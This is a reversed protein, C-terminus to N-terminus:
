LMNSSMGDAPPRDAPWMCISSCCNPLPIALIELPVGRQLHLHSSVSLALKTGPAQCPRPPSRTIQNRVEFGSLPMQWINYGEFRFSQKVKNTGASYPINISMAPSLTFSYKYYLLHLLGINKPQLSPLTGLRFSFLAGFATLSAASKQNLLTRADLPGPARYFARCIM